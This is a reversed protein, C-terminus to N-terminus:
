LQGLLQWYVLAALLWGTGLLEAALVARARWGDWRAGRWLTWLLGAVAAHLLLHWLQLAVTWGLDRQLWQEALLDGWLVAWVLAAALALGAHRSGTGSLRRQALALVILLLPALLLGGVTLLPQEYAQLRRHSLLTHPGMYTEGDVEAFGAMRSYSDAPALSRYLGPGVGELPPGGDLQLRNQGDVRVAVPPLLLAALVRPLLAKNDTARLYVYDGAWRSADAAASASVAPASARQWRAQCQDPLDFLMFDTPNIPARGPPDALFRVVGAPTFEPIPRNLNMVAFLAVGERPLVMYLANFGRITGAHGFGGGGPEGLAYSGMATGPLGAVLTTRQVDSFTAWSADSLLRGGPYRGEDLLASLLRAMDGATSSMDGAGRWGRRLHIQPRERPQGDPGTEFATATNEASDPLGLRTHRMGLPGLIRAKLVEPLPRRDIAELVQGLLGYALNDYVSVRGPERVRLLDRQLRMDSAAAAAQPDDLGVSSIEGDLGGRHTLLDQVRTPSRSDPLRLTPLLPAVEQDLRLRGEDVLQLVAIATFSKSISGIRFVTREADVSSAQDARPHGWTRLLPPAGRHVLAAAAAPPGGQGVRQGIVQDLWAADDAPAQARAAAALLCLAGLAALLLSGPRM